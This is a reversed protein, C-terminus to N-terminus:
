LPGAPSVAVRSFTSFLQPSFSNRIVPNRIISRPSHNKTILIIDIDLLEPFYNGSLYVIGYPVDTRWPIGDVRM